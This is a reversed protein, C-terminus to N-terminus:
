AANRMSPIEYEAARARIEDLTIWGASEAAIDASGRYCFGLASETKDIREVELKAKLIIVKEGTHSWADVYSERWLRAHVCALALAKKTSKDLPPTDNALRMLLSQHAEITEATERAIPADDFGERDSIADMVISRLIRRPPMKSM